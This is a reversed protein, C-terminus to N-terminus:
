NKLAFEWSGGSDYVDYLISAVATLTLYKSGSKWKDLPLKRAVVRANNAALLSACKPLRPENARDVIGGLIFIENGEVVCCGFAPTLGGDWVIEATGEILGIPKASIYCFVIVFSLKVASIFPKELESDAHPSLYVIDVHPFLDTFGCSFFEAAVFRNSDFM